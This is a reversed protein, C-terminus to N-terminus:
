GPSECKRGRFFTSAVIYIDTYLCFFLRRWSVVAVSEVDQDNNMLPLSSSQPVGKSPSPFSQWIRPLCLVASAQSSFWFPSFSFSFAFSGVNGSKADIQFSWHSGGLDASQLPIGATSHFLIRIQKWLTEWENWGLLGAVNRCWGCWRWCICPTQKARCQVHEAPIITAATHTRAHTQPAPCWWAVSHRTSLTIVKRMRRLCFFPLEMQM